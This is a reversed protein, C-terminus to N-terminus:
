IVPNVDGYWPLLMNGFMFHNSDKAKCASPAYSTAFFMDYFSGIYGRGVENTNEKYIIVPVVGFKNQVGAGLQISFFGSNNIGAAESSVLMQGTSNSYVEKQGVILDEFVDSDSYKNYFYGHCNFDKMHPNFTSYFVIVDRTTPTYVKIRDMGFLITGSNDPFPRMAAFRVCDSEETVFVCIDNYVFSESLLIFGRGSGNTVVPFANTAGGVYANKRSYAVEFRGSGLGILIQIGEFFGHGDLVAWSSFQIGSLSLPNTLDLHDVGDGPTGVITGNCTYNITFPFAGSDLLFRTVRKFLVLNHDIPAGRPIKSALFGSIIWQKELELLDSQM